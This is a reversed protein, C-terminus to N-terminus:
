KHLKKSNLINCPKDVKRLRNIELNKKKILNNCNSEQDRKMRITNARIDLNDNDDMIKINDTLKTEKTNYSSIIIENDITKIMNDKCTVKDFGRTLTGNVHGVNNRDGDYGAECKAKDFGRTLTESDHRINHDVDYDTECKAMDFGRTLAGSDHRINHDVDYSTECKAM